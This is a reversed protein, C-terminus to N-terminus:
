SETPQRGPRGVGGVRERLINRLLRFGEGLSLDPLYARTLANGIGPLAASDPYAMFLPVYSPHFKSKFALLSRFGYVPELASGLRDLLRDLGATASPGAATVDPRLVPATRALPAGSLSIFDCGEDKLSMAASAILFEVAARFGTRRRRMFDLTWGVIRGNRYVPLWSTVAHVQQDADIALLCRVEPDNLEDLGGLTFGMEPMTRDAVWEESIALIQTQINLGATPYSVWEAHIGAKAANNLSTRVDQFRKGTFSLSELSLVTEQAVQVTDWGLDTAADRVEASVSYFCPTWGNSRCYDWFEDVAAANLNKPGVPGDVTLAIGAIVRYAIYSQGTASFWYTNGAWTTMWSISSGDQSKLIALARENGDGHRPQSPRVFSKFVLVGTVAWFVIGVGEYLLVALTGQPLFAPPVDAIFGLPLFRDPTDALLDAATPVPTFETALALGVAIYVLSLAGALVLLQLALRTYTGRPATVPFLRGCGVLVVLLLVPVLLPVVLALPQTSHGPQSADVLEGAVTNPGAAQLVAVLTTLALLSLGAQVVLVGAWAFRRGRRLGEALLLLMFSPVIAMFIAGAGAQLQLHAAECDRHQAPVACIAQLTQPDVPRIDTFLFRLVALPGVAHPVLGAVVPGVASVAVLLAVLVRGEHRSSVPRVLRPRRGLLFPGLLAGAAGAGLRSLDAFGGSYLALLILLGFLGLRIRRRWLAGMSATAAMATGCIFATPGFYYLGRMERAWNGTLLRTAEWFGAAALIGATQTLVAAVSFNKSGMQRELPLCALLVLATGVVYGLLNRAWFAASVVAWWHNPLSQASAAVEARWQAAPGFLLSSSLLGLTWYVVVFSVTVPSGRVVALLWRVPRRRRFRGPKTVAPSELVTIGKLIEPVIRRAWGTAEM